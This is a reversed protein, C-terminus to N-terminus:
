PWSVPPLLTASITMPLAQHPRWVKSPRRRLLALPRLPFELVVADATEIHRGLHKARWQFDVHVVQGM